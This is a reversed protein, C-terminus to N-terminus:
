SGLTGDQASEMVFLEGLDFKFKQQFDALTVWYSALGKGYTSDACMVPGCIETGFALLDVRVGAASLFAELVPLFEVFPHPELIKKKKRLSCTYPELEPELKELFVIQM